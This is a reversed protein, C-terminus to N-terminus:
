PLTFGRVILPLFVDSVAAATASVVTAVDYVADHGSLDSTATVVTTDQMGSVATSPIQVTVTVPGWGFASLTVTPAGSPTAVTVTYGQSSTGTLTFTQTESIPNTLTHTYVALQGPQVNTNRDPALLRPTRFDAEQPGNWDLYLWRSGTQGLRNGPRYLVRARWRYVSGGTLGDVTQSLVVGSTLVDSWAPSTGSITSAATFPTGLPALQWQLAAPERGLPTRATLQLHVQNASNSRGLPAIPAQGDSRLQRPRVPPGGGGNGLYVFAGGEDMQTGNYTPAGVILDSYGDGNVDGASSVAFGYGAGEQNGEVTWDAPGTTLGTSGGHYVLVAGESSQGSAYHHAGVAVDSYGDGNVDGATSVALGFKASEQGGLATWNASGTTLGASSGHYVFAAGERWPTADLVETYKYAGVIVDSYGDGDVDGATSVATGFEAGARDGMAMWDAVLSLGAASGHYVFTAGNDEEEALTDDYWSAGIIVDSYGDRNVDGATSASRGFNAYAQGTPHVTWDASGTTLGTSSGHYVYAAGENTQAGDYGNAAIVVDSYGDGNVDGATSVATGFRADAQDGTATWGAPGPTLGTSSGHYVYAAGEDMQVGDYRPAGVIVDGYGDNNVDGAAAVAYGFWAWEQDSEGMWVPDTAPGDPRGLYLFAVGEESQGHDYRPAGVLIDAYGDGNVDGATSVSQGLLASAQNSTDSWTPAAALGSPGGHYVFAGGEDTQEHDYGSAGIALDSHGDGNVDGATSVATGFRANAQDTPHASWTPATALGTPGGYYVFAAGEDTQVDDYDPAGVIIDAYGDSNVDGATSVATGFHADAQDGTATWDASGTTLGTSSGHYVYAAGTQDGGYGPAGVIADAYGDGNVDGATSVATGFHANEQDGEASWVPSADLGTLSGRYVFATGEDTRDGDHDPAGVIIDAYGNGDVDGATSVAAGFHASEQGGTATWDAPGTIGALSGHYVFAAGEDTQVDDYDPAGVIIDHYGDGDVDGATSVATGFHANEQDGTATWDASGTTLGTSSGHYVFAAGEDTQADDYDPAGVIVDAYGNGDVDGAISVAAGFHANEQDGTATWDASGTTLGTSSGYYVFAAGEDTQGDDYWPAGVILDSYGDGNVDGATSLACGLGANDQDSEGTWDASSPLGAITLRLTIPYTATTNDLTIRLVHRTFRSAHFTFRSVHHAPTLELRVPLSRGTADTARPPGYRLVPTGNATALEIAQDGGTLRPTLDGTLALELVTPPQLNSIPSQLNPTQSKPNPIQFGQELGHQDNVYWETIPGRRYEVRNAEPIPMAEAVPQPAEGRGLGTLALGCTWGGGEGQGQRPSPPTPTRPVIRIGAPYFGFRLNQARNPAQYGGAMLGASPAPGGPSLPSEQWTIYYERHRVDEQVATWWDYSRLNLIPSQLNSIPSSHSRPPFLSLPMLLLLVGLCTRLITLLRNTNMNM